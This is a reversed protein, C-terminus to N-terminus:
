LHLPIFVSPICVLNKSCSLAKEVKEINHKDSPEKSKSLEVSFQGTQRSPLSLHLPSYCKSSKKLCETHSAGESLESQCLTCGLWPRHYLSRKKRGTDTVWWSQYSAVSNSECSLPFVVSSCPLDWTVTKLRNIEYM